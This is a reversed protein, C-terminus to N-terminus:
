SDLQRKAKDIRKTVARIDRDTLTFANFVQDVSVLTDECAGSIEDSIKTLIRSNTICALMSSNKSRKRERTDGSTVSYTDYTDTGATIMTHSDDQRMEDTDVTNLRSRGARGSNDEDTMHETDVTEISRNLNSEDQEEKPPEQHSRSHKKKSSSSKSKSKRKSEVRETSRSRDAKRRSSSSRKVKAKGPSAPPSSHHYDQPQEQQPLHPEQEEMDDLGSGVQLNPEFGPLHGHEARRRNLLREQRIRDYSLRQDPDGLIRVALVVSDMKRETNFREMAADENQPKSDIKALLAFLESRRDFYALQIQEPTAVVSVRLVDSYLDAFDGFAQDIVSLDLGGPHTSIPLDGMTNHEYFPQTSVAVPQERRPM